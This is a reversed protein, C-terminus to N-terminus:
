NWSTYKASIDWGEKSKLIGASLSIESEPYDRFGWTANYHAEYGAGQDRMETDKGYNRISGGLQSKLLM